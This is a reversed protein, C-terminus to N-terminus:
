AWRSAPRFAVPLAQLGRLLMNGRWHLADLSTDLRLGPLRRLLTALAVQGELRALPAGLCFHIGQGFALHKSGTRALDLAEADRFRDEDRDASALSIVLVEGRPITTGGIDVDDCAFRLMPALAPGCFRLLEEIADPVLSRDQELKDLEDPHAFLALLGNGLLNVTTEHGAFILLVLMARLEQMTLRGGADEAQVLLSVLDERPERRKTEILDELYAMFAEARAHSDADERMSLSDLLMASWERLRGRDGPPIGLMECIVTIPLPFAFESIFEMKGRPLVADILTDAIQQVRPRLGEIFRPTFAKSVLGRLRAHDAMDVDFMSPHSLRMMISSQLLPEHGPPAVTSVSPARLLRTADAFRTVLWARRGEPLTIAHVPGTARLRALAPFPNALFAPDDFDIGEPEPTGDAVHQKTSIM